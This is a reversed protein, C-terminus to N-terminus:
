DEEDEEFGEGELYFLDEMTLGWERCLRLGADIPVRREGAEWYGVSSRKYGAIIGVQEQSLGRALRNERIRNAAGTM